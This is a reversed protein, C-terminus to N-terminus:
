VISAKELRCDCHRVALQSFQIERFSFSLLVVGESAVNVAVM